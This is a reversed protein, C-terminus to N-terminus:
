HIDDNGEAMYDLVDWEYCAGWAAQAEDEGAAVFAEYDERVEAELGWKSAQRVAAELWSEGPQRTLGLAM